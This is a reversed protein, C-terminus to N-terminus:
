PKEETPSAQKAPERIKMSLLATWGVGTLVGDTFIYPTFNDRLPVGDRDTASEDAHWSSRFFFLEVMSQQGTETETPIAEPGKIENSYLGAQTPELLALVKDQPDGLRVQAAAAQYRAIAEDLRGRTHDREAREIETCGALIWLCIWLVPPSVPRGRRGIIKAWIIM